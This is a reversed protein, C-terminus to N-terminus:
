TASRPTPCATTPSRSRAPAATTPGRRPRPRPHPQRARRLGAADDPARPRRHRRDADREPRDGRDRGEGRRRVRGGDSLARYANSAHNAHDVRGAEVMLVFGNENRSLIEIAKTTMEAISPEGGADKARDAEYEWTARSSCASCRRRARRTSGRSARGISCWSTTTRNGGAVRRRPQARGRPARDQGRGGPRGRRHAPFPRRGGGLAVDIGDGHEFDILQSAIDVCGEPTGADDEFDRDVSHAYAAAPTAHTLRATSIVGTAM